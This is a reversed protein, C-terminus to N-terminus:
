EGVSPLGCSSAVRWNELGAAASTRRKTAALREWAGSADPAVLGSLEVAEVARRRNHQIIDDGGGCLARVTDADAYVPEMVAVPAPRAKGAATAKPSATRQWWLDELPPIFPGQPSCNQDICFNHLRATVEIVRTINTCDVLLPRWLIGWRNKWRGFACEVVQRLLSCFYNYNRQRAILTHKAFPTIINGQCTFADDGV